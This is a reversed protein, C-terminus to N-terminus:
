LGTQAWAFQLQFLLPLSSYTLIHRQGTSRGACKSKLETSHAPNRAPNRPASRGGVSAGFQAGHWTQVVDTNTATRHAIEM